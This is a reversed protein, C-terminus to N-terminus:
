ICITSRRQTLRLIEPDLSALAEVAKPNSGETFDVEYKIGNELVLVWSGETHGDRFQLPYIQPLPPEDLAALALLSFMVIFVCPNTARM